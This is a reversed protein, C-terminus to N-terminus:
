STMERFALMETGPPLPIDSYPLPLKTEARNQSFKSNISNIADDFYLGTRDLIVVQHLDPRMAGWKLFGAAGDFVIGMEIKGIVDSSPQSIGVPVLASRHTQAETTFRKIRLVDQLWGKEWSGGDAHAAFPTHRIEYELLSKQGVIACVFKSQIGLQVSDSEGLLINVFENSFRKNKGSPIQPLKGSHAALQVQLARAEPILCTIEGGKKSPMSIQVSILREGNREQPTQLIGNYTKRPGQQYIVPTKPPLDLLKKFHAVESPQNGRRADSVVMGLSVLVACYARTPVVFATVIRNASDFDALALQEGVSIFYEAWEPLRHWEGFSDEFYLNTLPVDGM